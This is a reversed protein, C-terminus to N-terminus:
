IFIIIIMIIIIIIIDPGLLCGTIDSQFLVVVAQNNALVM